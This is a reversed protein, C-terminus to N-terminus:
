TKVALVWPQAQAREGNPDILSWNHQSTNLHKGVTASKFTTSGDVVNLSGTIITSDMGDGVLMVNMKKKGVEVNEKYTGKKVYIVYRSKGKDPASNVAEQVTQYNGSGDKAVVVNAKINRPLSQLLKRDNKTVWSPFKGDLPRLADEKSSSIATLMALSTKARAILGQLKDEMAARASGNLGDLCTVHNTLISSLWSHADAPSRSTRTGLVAVTDTLRDISLDMLEVCDVLAAQETRDNIRSNVSHAVKLAEKVLLASKELFSRLLDVDNLQKAGKAAVAEYVMSLCSERDHAPHCLRAQVSDSLNSPGTTNILHPAVIVTLSVIAALSLFIYLIKCSSSTRKPAGLLPQHGAEM